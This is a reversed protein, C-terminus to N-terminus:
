NTLNIDLQRLTEIENRLALIKQNLDTQARLKAAEESSKLVGLLASEELALTQQDELEARRIALESLLKNSEEIKEKIVAVVNLELEKMASKRLDLLELVKASDGQSDKSTRQKEAEKLYNWTAEQFKQQKERVLDSAGAVEASLKLAGTKALRQDREYWLSLKRTEADINISKEAIESRLQEIDQSTNVRDKLLLKAAEQDQLANLYSQYLKLRTELSAIVKVPDRSEGEGNVSRLAKERQVEFRNIPKASNDSVPLNEPFYQKSFYHLGFVLLVIGLANVLSEIFKRNKSEKPKELGQSYRVLYYKLDEHHQPIVKEYSEENGPKTSTERHLRADSSLIDNLDDSASVNKVGNAFKILTITINDNGGRRNAVEILKSNIEELTSGASVIKGIEQDTLMNYLGDSCLLYIDGAAPGPEDEYCDAEVAAAPGLSKTLMHAVPHNSVQDATIIGARLLENVLTHDENLQLCRGRRIRYIRSDGVNFLFVKEATVCIGVITTGMGSLEPDTLSFEFIKKNASNIAFNLDNKSCSKRDQLQEKMESIAMEAAAAGGKVGGMGDAVLFVKFNANLIEGPRDQNEERKLGIDSASAYSLGQLINLKEQSSASSM